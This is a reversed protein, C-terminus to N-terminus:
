STTVSYTAPQDMLPSVYVKYGSIIDTRIAYLNTEDLGSNNTLKNITFYNPIAIVVYKQTFQQKGAVIGSANAKVVKTLAKIGAETLNDTVGYYCAHVGNITASKTFSAAAIPSGHPDGYTDYPQPGTEYSIIFTGKNGNGQVIIGNNTFTGEDVTAVGRAYNQREGNLTIQGRNANINFSSKNFTTGVEAISNKASVTPEPASISPYLRPFFMEDIIESFRKGELEGVATGKAVGGITSTSELSKNPIKSNYYSGGILQGASYMEGRDWAIYVTNVFDYMAQCADNITKFKSGTEDASDIYPPQSQQGLWREFSEQLDLEDDMFIPFKEPSPYGSAKAASNFDTLLSQNSYQTLIPEWKKKLEAFEIHVYNAM